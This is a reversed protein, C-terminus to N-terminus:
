ACRRRACGWCSTPDPGGSRRRGGRAAAAGVRRPLGRLAPGGAGAVGVGGGPPGRRPAAPGSEVLMGKLLNMGPSGLFHAVFANAPKAYLAEPPAVQQLKGESM